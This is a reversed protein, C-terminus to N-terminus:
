AKQQGHASVEAMREFTFRQSQGITLQHGRVHPELVALAFGAWMQHALQTGDNPMHYWGQVFDLEVEHVFPCAEWGATRIGLRCDPNFGDHMLVYTRTLPPVSLVSAIDQRVGDARHDGDILVFPYATGAARLEGLLRPLTVRSDGIRFEVNPFQGLRTPTTPDVDLSYVKAAVSSLVQLSGGQASGIEIACSPRVVDLLGILAFREAATMKWPLPYRAFFDSYWGM